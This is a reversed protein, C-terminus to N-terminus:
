QNISQNISSETTTRRTSLHDCQTGVRAQEVVQLLAVLQQLHHLLAEALIQLRLALRERSEVEQGVILEELDQRLRLVRRGHLRVEALAELVDGLDAEAM